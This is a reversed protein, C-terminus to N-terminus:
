VETVTEMLIRGVMDAPSTSEEEVHRGISRGSEMSESSSSSLSVSYSSSSMGKKRFLQRCSNPVLRVPIVCALDRITFNECIFWCAHM